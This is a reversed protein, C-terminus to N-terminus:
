RWGEALMERWVRAGYAIAQDPFDFLRTSSIGYRRLQLEWGWQRHCLKAFVRTSGRRLIWLTQKLDFNPERVWQSRPAVLSRSSM